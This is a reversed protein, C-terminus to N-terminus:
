DVLLDITGARTKKTFDKDHDKKSKFSLPIQSFLDSNMLLAEYPVLLFTVPNTNNITQRVRKGDKQRRM